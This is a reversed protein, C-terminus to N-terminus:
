PGAPGHGDTGEKPENTRIYIYTGVVLLALFVYEMRGMSFFNGALLEDAAQTIFWLACGRWIIRNAWTRPWAYAVWCLAALAGQTMALWAVWNAPM